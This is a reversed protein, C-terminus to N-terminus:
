WYVDDVLFKEFIVVAQVFLLTLLGDTLTVRSRQVSCGLGTQSASIVRLAAMM